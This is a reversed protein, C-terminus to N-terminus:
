FDRVWIGKLFELSVLIKLSEKIPFPRIFNITQTDGEILAFASVNEVRCNALRALFAM